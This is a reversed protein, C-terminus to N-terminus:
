NSLSNLQGLVIETGIRANWVVVCADFTGINHQDFANQDKKVLIQSIQKVNLQKNVRIRVNAQCTLQVKCIKFDINKEPRTSRSV